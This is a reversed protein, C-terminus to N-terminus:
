GFGASGGIRKFSGTSTAKRKNLNIAAIGYEKVMAYDDFSFQRVGRRNLYHGCAEALAVAQQRRHISLISGTPYQHSPTLVILGGPDSREIRSINMGQGDVEVPCVAYKRAIRSTSVEPPRDSAWPASAQSQALLATVSGIGPKRVTFCTASFAFAM